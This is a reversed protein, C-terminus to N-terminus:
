DETVVERVEGTEKDIWVQALFSGGRTNPPLNSPFTVIWMGARLATTPKLGAIEFGSKELHKAARSIAKAADLSHGVGIESTQSKETTQPEDADDAAEVLNKLYCWEKIGSNYPIGRENNRLDSGWTFKSNAVFKSNVTFIFVQAPRFTGWGWKRVSEYYIARDIEEGRLEGRAMSVGNTDVLELSGFGHRNTNGAHTIVAVTFRFEDESKQVKIKLFPHKKLKDVKMESIAYYAHLDSPLFVSLTLFLSLLIKM